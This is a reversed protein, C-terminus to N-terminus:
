MSINDTKPAEYQICHLWTACVTVSSCKECVEKNYQRTCTAIVKPEFGFVEKFKEANTM